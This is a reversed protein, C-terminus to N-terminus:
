CGDGRNLKKGDNILAQLEQESFMVRRGLKIGKLKHQYYWARITYKSVKLINAAEKVSFINEVMQSDEKKMKQAIIACNVISTLLYIPM